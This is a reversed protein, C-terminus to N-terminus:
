IMQLMNDIGNLLHEAKNSDNNFNMCIIQGQFGEPQWNISRLDVDRPLCM